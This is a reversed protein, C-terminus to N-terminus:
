GITSPNRAHELILQLLSPHKHLSETCCGDRGEDEVDRILKQISSAIGLDSGVYQFLGSQEDPNVNLRRM